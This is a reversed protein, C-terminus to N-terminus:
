LFLTVYHRKYKVSILKDPWFDNKHIVKIKEVFKLTQSVFFLNSNGKKQNEM